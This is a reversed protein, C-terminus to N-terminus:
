ENDADENEPAAYGMEPLDVSRLSNDPELERPPVEVKRPSLNAPSYGRSAEADTVGWEQAEKMERKYQEHLGRIYPLTYGQAYLDDAIEYKRIASTEPSVYEAYLAPEHLRTFEIPLQPIDIGDSGEWHDHIDNRIVVSTVRGVKRVTVVSGGATISIGDDKGDRSPSSEKTPFLVLVTFIAAAAFLTAVLWVFPTTM